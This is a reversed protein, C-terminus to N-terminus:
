VGHRVQPLNGILEMLQIGHKDLNLKLSIFVEKHKQDTGIMYAIIRRPKVVVLDQEEPHM